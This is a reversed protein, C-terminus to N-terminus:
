LYTRLSRAMEDEVAILKEALTRASASATPFKGMYQCVSKIGMHCGDTMLSAVTQDGPALFLKAGTKMRAMGKVLGSPERDPEHYSHLLARAEEKLGRHAEVGHRLIDKLAAGECHPLVTKLSDLGMKIGANCERLLRATDEHAM